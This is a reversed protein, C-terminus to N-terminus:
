RPRDLSMSVDLLVFIVALIISKTGDGLSDPLNVWPIDSLHLGELSGRLVHDVDKDGETVKEADIAVRVM